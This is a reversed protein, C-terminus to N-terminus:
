CLQVPSRLRRSKASHRPHEPMEASRRILMRKGEAIWRLVEGERATLRACALVARSFLSVEETLLLMQRGEGDQFWRVKLRAEPTVM